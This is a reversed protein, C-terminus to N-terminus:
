SWELLVHKNYLIKFICFFTLFSIFIVRLEVVWLYDIYVNQHTEKRNCM